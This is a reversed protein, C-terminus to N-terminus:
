DPKRPNTTLTFRGMTARSNLGQYRLFDKAEAARQVVIPDIQSDRFYPKSAVALNDRVADLAGVAFNVETSLEPFSSVPQWASFALTGAANPMPLLNLFGQPYSPQYYLTDPTGPSPAYAQLSQFEIASVVNVPTTTDGVTFTAAANGYAIRNPRPATVTAGSEAITYQATGSVVAASLSALQYVFITEAAWEDLMSNLIFHVRGLDAASITDGPGYVGLMELADQILDTAATM